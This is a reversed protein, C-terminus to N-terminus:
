QRVAAALGVAGSQFSSASRTLTSILMLNDLGADPGHLSLRGITIIGGIRWIDAEGNGAAIDRRRMAITITDIRLAPEGVADQYRCCRFLPFLCLDFAGHARTFWCLNQERAMAAPGIASAAGYKSDRSFSIDVTLQRMSM